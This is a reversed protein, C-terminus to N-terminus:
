NPLRMLMAFSENFPVDPEAAYKRKLVPDGSMIYHHDEQMEKDIWVSDRM